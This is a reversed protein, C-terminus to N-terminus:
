TSMKKKLIAGMKNKQTSKIGVNNTGGVKSPRKVLVFVLFFGFHGINQVSIYLLHVNRDSLDVHNDVM